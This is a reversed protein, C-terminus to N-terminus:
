SWELCTVVDDLKGIIRVQNYWCYVVIIATVFKAVDLIPCSRIIKFEVALLRFLNDESSTADTAFRHLKWRRALRYVSSIFQSNEARDDVITRSSGIM